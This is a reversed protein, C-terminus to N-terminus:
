SASASVAAVSRRSTYVCCGSEGARPLAGVSSGARQRGNRSVNAPEMNGSKYSIRMEEKIGPFASANTLLFKKKSVLPFRPPAGLTTTTITSPHGVSRTSSAELSALSDPILMKKTVISAAASLSLCFTISGSKTSLTSVSSARALLQAM